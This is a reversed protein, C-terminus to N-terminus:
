TTRMEIDPPLALLDRHGIRCQTQAIQATRRGQWSAANTEGAETAAGAIGTLLEHQLAAESPGLHWPSDAQLVRFGAAAFIEAIAEAADPGLAPGFGKDGRQHQNFALTVDADAPDDPSWHMRGDYNLAAYFPLAHRALHDALSAVWDRACLDLLASATVLTAGDLPLKHLDRLDLQHTTVGAKAGEAAQELLFADNDVLRWDAARQVRGEFARITSGTGCGLDVIVPEPGAAQAAALLLASDRAAHDAPERLALWTSSFGM